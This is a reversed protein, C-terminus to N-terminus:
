NVDAVRGNIFTIKMDKYVYLQKPGLNVTKEPQGLAAVVQDMTMGMQISQPQQQAQQGGGGQAQQQGGGQQGGQQGGGQDQAQAQDQSTDSIALLQGITDEIEPAGAKALSGKAFQFVVNVKNYTPPDTKNCSDCAVIGMVVQDKDVHVDIKSPYVKDGIKFLKTTAEDNAADPTTPCKHMIGCLKDSIGKVKGAADSSHVTGDQFTATRTINNKYPTGIIGGKKIELLTGEETIAYGSSDSGVKALKYQASLQESLTPAQARAAAPFVASLALLAFSTILAEFRHRM